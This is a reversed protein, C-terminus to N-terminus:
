DHQVEATVEEPASEPKPESSALLSRRTLFYVAAGVPVMLRIAMMGSGYRILASYTTVSLFNMNMRIGTSGVTAGLTMFGLIVLVIWLAKKKIKRRCCDVLAFIAFGYALLNSLLLGWQVAGANEMTKLTGTFYYDTKEYPTLYFSQLATPDGSTQVSVVFKGQGTVMEYNASTVTSTQGNMVSKNTHIYLLNLEYTETNGLLARMDAFIPAFAEETCIDQVPSYAAEMDDAILADLVTRTTEQLAPDDLAEMLPACGCCLLIVLLLSLCVVFVKKM